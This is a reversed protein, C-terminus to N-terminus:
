GADSEAALFRREPAGGNENGAHQETRQDPPEADAEAGTEESLGDAFAMEHQEIVDRAADQGKRPDPQQAAQEKVAQDSGAAREGSGDGRAPAVTIRSTSM